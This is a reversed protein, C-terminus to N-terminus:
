KRGRSSFLGHFEGPWFEPTPLWEKSWPIKGVWPDFGPRGCQKHIIEASSGPFGVVTKTLLM